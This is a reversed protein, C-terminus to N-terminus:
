RLSLLHRFTLLHLITVKGSVREYAHPFFDTLESSMTAVANNADLGPLRIVADMLYLTPCIQGPNATSKLTAIAKSIVLHSKGPIAALLSTREILYKDNVVLKSLFYELVADFSSDTPDGAECNNYVFRNTADSGQFWVNIVVCFPALVNDLKTKYDEVSFIRIQSQSRVRDYGVCTGHYM